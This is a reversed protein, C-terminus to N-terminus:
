PSGRVGTDSVPRTGVLAEAVFREYAGMAVRPRRDFIRWLEAPRHFSSLTCKRGSRLASLQPPVFINILIIQPFIRGPWHSANSAAKLLASSIRPSGFPKRPWHSM